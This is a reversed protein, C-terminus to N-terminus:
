AHHGFREFKYPHQRRPSYIRPDYKLLHYYRWPLGHLKDVQIKLGHSSLEHFYRPIKSLDFPRYIYLNPCSYTVFVTRSQWQKECLCKSHNSYANLTSFIKSQCFFVASDEMCFIPYGDKLMMQNLKCYDLCYRLKGDKRSVSIGFRCIQPRGIQHFLSQATKLNWHKSRVASPRNQYSDLNFPM